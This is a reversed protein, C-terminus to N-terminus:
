IPLHIAWRGEEKHLTVTKFTEDHLIIHMVATEGNSSVTEIKKYERTTALVHGPRLMEHGKRPAGNSANENFAAAEADLAQRTRTSLYEWITATDQYELEQLFGTLVTRPNDRTWVPGDGCASLFLSLVLM